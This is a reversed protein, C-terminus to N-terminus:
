CTMEDLFTQGLFAKPFLHLFYSCVGFLTRAYVHLVIWTIWLLSHSCFCNLSISRNGISGLQVFSKSLRSLLLLGRFPLFVMWLNQGSYFMPMISCERKWHYWLLSHLLSALLLWCFICSIEVLKKDRQGHVYSGNM